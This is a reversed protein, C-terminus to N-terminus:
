AAKEKAAARAELERTAEELRQNEEHLAAIEKLIEEEAADRLIKANITALRAIALYMQSRTRAEEELKKAQALEYIQDFAARSKDALENRREQRAEAAHIDGKHTQLPVKHAYAIIERIQGQALQLRTFLQPFDQETLTPLFRELAEEILM